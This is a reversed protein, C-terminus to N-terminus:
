NIKVGSIITIVINLIKYEMFTAFAEKLWIYKWWTPTVYDGFWQHAFEHVAALETVEKSLTSTKSRSLITM